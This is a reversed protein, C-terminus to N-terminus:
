ARANAIQRARFATSAAVGLAGLMALAFVLRAHPFLALVGGLERAMTVNGIPAGDVRIPVRNVVWSETDLNTPVDGISTGDPSVLSLKTAKDLRVNGLLTAADLIQMLQSTPVKNLLLTRTFLFILGPKAAKGVIGTALLGPDDARLLLISSSAPSDLAQKIWPTASLDSRPAALDASTYLLRSKYDAVAITSEYQQSGFRRVYIWDQSRLEEQIKELDAADSTEDGLGFDAQDHHSAVDRMVPLTYVQNANIDFQNTLLAVARDVQTATLEFSEHIQALLRDRVVWDAGLGLALVAAVVASAIATVRWPRARDRGLEILLHDMTPFRDGPKVSLGRLVIARLASSIKKAPPPPRVRGECVNEGLEPFTKGEFPRQGYLAEYLSVCFNFQDTRADVNGGTFQEPAMYAPTGLVSGSTTLNVDGMSPLPAV